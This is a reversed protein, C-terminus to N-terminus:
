LMGPLSFFFDPFLTVTSSTSFNLFPSLILTLLPLSFKSLIISSFLPRTITLYSCYRQHFLFLFVHSVFPLSAPLRYSISRSLSNTVRSIFDSLSLTLFSIASFHLALVLYLSIAFPLVSPFYCSTQPLFSRNCTHYSPNRSFTPSLFLCRPSLQIFNSLHFTLFLSISIRHSRSISLLELQLSLCCVITSFSLLITLPLSNQLPFHDSSLIFKSLDPPLQLYHSLNLLILRLM